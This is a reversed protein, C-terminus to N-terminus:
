KNGFCQREDQTLSRSHSLYHLTQLSKVLTDNEATISAAAIILPRPNEHLPRRPSEGESEVSRILGRSYVCSSDHMESTRPAMM